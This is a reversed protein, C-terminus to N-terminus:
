RRVAMSLPANSRQEKGPACIPAAFSSRPCLLFAAPNCPYDETPQMPGYRRAWKKGADLALIPYTNRCYPLQSDGFRNICHDNITCCAIDNQVDGIMEIPTIFRTMVHKQLVHEISLGGENFATFKFGSIRVGFPTLGYNMHSAHARWWWRHSNTKIITHSVDKLRRANAKRITMRM